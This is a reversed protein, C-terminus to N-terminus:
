DKPNIMDWIYRLMKRFVLAQIIDDMSDLKLTIVQDMLVSPKRSGLGPHDLMAPPKKQPASAKPSCCSTRCNATFFPNAVAAPNDCLTGITDMLLAPLKFMTRHFKM